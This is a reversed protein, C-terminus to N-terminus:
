VQAYNKVRTKDKTPQGHGNGQLQMASFTTLTRLWAELPEEPAPQEAPHRLVEYGDSKWLEDLEAEAPVPSRGCFQVAHRVCIPGPADDATGIADGVCGRM